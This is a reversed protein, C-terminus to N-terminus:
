ERGSGDEEEILMINLPDQNLQMSLLNVNHPIISYIVDLNEKYSIQSWFRILSIIMGVLTRLSKSNGGEFTIRNRENWIVWLVAGRLLEYLNSDKFPICYDISWLVKISVRHDHFRFNNHHSIWNWLCSAVTCHIFLHEVSEIDNCFICSTNGTWGRKLMNHKTLIMNKQVLWLFIKIKLPM